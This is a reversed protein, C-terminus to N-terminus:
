RKRIGACGGSAEQRSLRQGARMTLGLNLCYSTTRSRASPWGCRHACGTHPWAICSCLATATTGSAKPEDHAPLLWPCSLWACPVVGQSVCDCCAFHHKLEIQVCTSPPSDLTCLRGSHCLVRTCRVTCKSVHTDLCGNGCCIKSCRPCQQCSSAAALGPSLTLRQGKRRSGM